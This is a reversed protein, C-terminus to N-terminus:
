AEKIKANELLFDFLKKEKIQLSLHERHKQYNEAVKRDGAFIEEIKKDVEESSVTINEDKIIRSLLYSIRVRKEADIKYKDEMAPISKKFEEENFSRNSILHQKTKEILRGLEEEVFTEPVPFNNSKLLLEIIQNEMDQQTKEEEVKTLEDKIKEKLQGVNEHGLDKAFEDDISPSVKKKIAKVKVDFNAPKDSIKTEITKSEGAKMGILGTAFGVPLSEHSLDIIQNEAPKDMKKGDVTSEYDAILFHHQEAVVDGADELTSQRDQINKIVNNIEKDTIKKVKKTIKIKKYDKPEFEPEQEIKLKFSFPKGEAFDLPEITPPVVPQLNKEKIIKETTSAMLNHITKEVATRAFERKVFEMPVHGKRFGDIAANKQIDVFVVDMESKVEETPIEVKIEVSCGKKELVDIKM